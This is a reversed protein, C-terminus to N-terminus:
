LNGNLEFLLEKCSKKLVPHQLDPHLQCLPELVFQRKHLYPHPIMLKPHSYVILNYFLIDIDITRYDWKKFRERGLIKEIYLIKGLVNEPSLITNIEVVLNLFNNRTHGVPLTEIISSINKIIFYRSLIKMSRNIYYRRDTLNSGIGLLVMNM